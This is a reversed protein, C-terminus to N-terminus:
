HQPGRARLDPMALKPPRWNSPKVLSRGVEYTREALAFKWPSYIKRYRGYQVLQGGFKAKFERVGYPKDPWGAGGFDYLEFGLEQACQVEHWTLSEMPNITPIRDSGSYWAFAVKKYLLKVTAAIPVDGLYAISIRIMNRPHLVKFAQVFLSKHALPVRAREYSLQIFRYLIDVGSATTADEVRMGKKSGARIRRRCDQTMASWLTNPPQRLDILFNLYDQYEYGCHTLAVKEQGPPQLVRVETFLVKGGTEADHQAILTKLAEVGDADPRCLPEAFFVSRSSLSGFPHPLTQIRVATLLALMEGRQDLAALALPDHNKTGQFVRYMAPTHFICGKPHADVFLAWQEQDPADVVTCQSV